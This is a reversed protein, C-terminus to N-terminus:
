GMAWKTLQWSYPVVEQVSAALLVGSASLGGPPVGDSLLRCKGEHTFSWLVGCVKKQAERQQSAQLQRRMEQMQALMYQEEPPPKPM